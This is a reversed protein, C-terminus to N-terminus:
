IRSSDGGLNLWSMDTSTPPPQRQKGNQPPAPFNSFNTSSGPLTNNYDSQSYSSQARGLAWEQREVPTWTNQEHVSAPVGSSFADHRDEAYSSMSSVSGSREIQGSMERAPFKSSQYAITPSGSMVRNLEPRDNIKLPAPMASVQTMGATSPLRDVSYHSESSRDSGFTTRKSSFGLINLGSGGSWYRNWGSSRRTSGRRAGRTSRRPTVGAEKEEATSLAKEDRSPGAVPAGVNRFVNDQPMPKSIATKYKQNFQSSSDSGNDKDSRKHGVRGM